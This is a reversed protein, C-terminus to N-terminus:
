PRLFTVGPMGAIRDLDEEYAELMLDIHHAEWHPLEIVEDLKDPDSYHELHTALASLARDQEVIVPDGIAETLKDQGEETLYNRALDASGALPQDDEIGAVASLAMPWILPADEHAWVTIPAEPNSTQILDIVNSWFMQGPDAGALLEELSFAAESALLESLFAVPNRVCLSFEAPHQDFTAQLWSSKFGAKGYFQGDHFIKSPACIFMPDALVIRVAEESGALDTLFSDQNEAPLPNGRLTTSWESIQRRFFRPRPVSVGAERLAVRDRRLSWIIADSDTFPAGLHFVIDM